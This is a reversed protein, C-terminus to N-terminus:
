SAKGRLVFAGQLERGITDDLAWDKYRQGISKQNRLEAEAHQRKYQQEMTKMRALRIEEVLEEPMDEPLDSLDVDTTM